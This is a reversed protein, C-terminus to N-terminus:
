PAARLLGEVGGAGRGLRPGSGREDSPRAGGPGPVVIDSHGTTVIAAATAALAARVGAPIHDGSWGGAEDLATEIQVEQTKVVQAQKQEWAAHKGAVVDARQSRKKDAVLAQTAQQAEAREYRTKAYSWTAAVVIATWAAFLALKLEISM